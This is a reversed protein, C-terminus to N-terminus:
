NLEFIDIFKNLNKLLWYFKANSYLNKNQELQFCLKQLEKKDFFNLLNENILEKKFKNKKM